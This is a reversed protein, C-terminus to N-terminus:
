AIAGEDQDVPATAAIATMTIIFCFATMAMFPLSVFGFEWVYRTTCPNFLSCFSRQDPFAQLQTQYAAIGLGVAAPPVVYRWVHRDRRSAAILLVVSFPYVCIRQYWCLECPEFHAGLSYYLSGATTVAAVIWALWLAAPELARRAATASPGGRRASVVLVVAVITAAACVLSLIAFFTSLTATSMQGGAYPTLGRGCTRCTSVLKVETREGQARRAVIKTAGAATISM